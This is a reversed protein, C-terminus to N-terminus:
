RKKLKELTHKIREVGKQINEMSTAYSLRIYGEKGFASGPVVAVKAEELLYETLKLDNEFIDQTYKSVNPFAYFAGQPLICHVGEISNLASVIYDRRKIFEERMRRPFEGGDKLAELAGYQIFTTPNSITQSQMDVIAKSFKEPAAVWGLRWGTMSYSKSFASVTFTIYRVEKSLSAISVHEEDYSFEEYCEDSIILINNTLCFEAIRELEKKPVVAGTPNSPTNLVLAKTRESVADEIQEVTLVFGNEESLDVIRSVGDNLAIQETYSVWYPAPVIVEDGPNLIVSFIEYLGMKAGPCVVVESPKYEIGNKEKIRESLAKRLEPIGGAPSYKTKGEKLAKIAAEKVYDPTDFDPEGAGFNIIDVGKSKLENAKATITLTQSPKIKKIRESLEM